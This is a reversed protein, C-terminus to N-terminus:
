ARITQVVSAQSNRCNLMANPGMLAAPSADFRHCPLPHLIRISLFFRDTASTFKEWSM